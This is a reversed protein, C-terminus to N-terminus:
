VFSLWAPVMLIVFVVLLMLIMPILLKTSAQEGLIRAQDRRQQQAKEAEERLIKQMGMSGKQLNQVLLSSFTRYPLLGCREGLREYATRESIGQEMELCTIRIEEYAYRVGTYEKRSEYNESMRQLARRMSMGAGLLLTLRSLLEPYDKLLQQKRDRRRLEEEQKGRWLLLVSCIAAAPFVKNGMDEGPINWVVKMSDIETPLAFTKGEKENELELLKEVQKEMKESEGFSEPFVKIQKKYLRQTGQIELLGQLEMEVGGQPIEQSLAGTWDVYQPHSSSWTINVPIEGIQEPLVLPHQIKDASTNEGLIIEELEKQAADLLNEKEALTYKREGVQVTVSGEKYEGDQDTWKYELEELVGGQGYEPRELSIVNKGDGSDKALMGYALTLLCGITLVVAAQMYNRETMWEWPIWGRTKLNKWSWRIGRKWLPCGEEKRGYITMVALLILIAAAAIRMM